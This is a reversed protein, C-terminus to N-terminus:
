RFEPEGDHHHQRAPRPRACAIRGNRRSAPSPLPSLTPNRSARFRRARSPLTPILVGFPPPFAERKEYESVHPYRRHFLNCLRPLGVQLFQLRRRAAALLPCKPLTWGLLASRRVAAFLRFRHSRYGSAYGGASRVAPSFSLTPTTLTRSVRFCSPTSTGVHGGWCWLSTAPFRNRFSGFPPLQM